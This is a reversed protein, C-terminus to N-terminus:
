KSFKSLFSIVQKLLESFKTTKNLSEYFLEWGKYSAVTVISIYLTAQDESSAMAHINNRFLYVTGVGIVFNAVVEVLHLKRKRRVEVAMGILITIISPLLTKAFVENWFEKSM